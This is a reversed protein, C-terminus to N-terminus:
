NPKRDEEALKRFRAQREAQEKELDGEPAKPGGLAASVVTLIGALEKAPIEVRTLEGTKVNMKQDGGAELRKELETVVKARIRSLAARDDNKCSDLIAISAENYVRHWWESQNHKWGAITDKPIGTATEAADYTGHVIYARVAREKESESYTRM